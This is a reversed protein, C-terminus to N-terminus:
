VDAAAVEEGSYWEASTSSRSRENGRGVLRRGVPGSSPGRSAMESAALASPMKSRRLGTGSSSTFLKYTWQWHPHGGAALKGIGCYDVHGLLHETSVVSLGGLFATTNCRWKPPGASHPGRVYM